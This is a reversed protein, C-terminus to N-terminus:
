SWRLLVVTVDDAPHAGQCFRDVDKHLMEVLNRVDQHSHIHIFELLRELGYQEGEPSLAETIGDTVILLMDGQSVNDIRSVKAADDASMGLPLSTSDLTDTSGNKRLLYGQHGAASFTFGKRDQDIVAFFMTVFRRHQTDEVLANNLRTMIDGMDELSSSFARLYARTQSILLSAALDHGSVDGVVIGVRDDPMEIFDYYDGGVADSAYSFGAADLGKLNPQDSPLLSRQIQRAADLKSETERLELEARYANIYDLMLGTLPICYALIKLFCASFFHYDFLAKSGLSVHLQSMVAPVACLVLSYSFLSPYLKWFRPLVILGTILWLFLPVTDFPRHVLLEPYMADPLIVAVALIKTIGFAIVGFLLGLLILYRTEQPPTRIFPPNKRYLFPLAGAFLIAVNFTRAVAWSVPIFRDFDAVSFILRNAALINFADFLGTFLMATGIIPTTVDKKLRYHVISLLGCFFAVCFATWELVTYLLPGSLLYFSRLVPSELKLEQFEVDLEAPTKDLPLNLDWDSLGILFPLLSLLCVAIVFWKPLSHSSMPFDVKM